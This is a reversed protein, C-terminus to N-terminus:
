AFRVDLLGDRPAVRLDVEPAGRARIRAYRAAVEAPDTAGVVVNAIRTIGSPHQAAAGGPM